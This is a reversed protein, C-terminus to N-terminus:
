MQEKGVIFMVAKSTAEIMQGLSSCLKIREDLFRENKVKQIEGKLFTESKRLTDNLQRCTNIEEQKAQLVKQLKRVSIKKTL